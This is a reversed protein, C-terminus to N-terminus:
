AQSSYPGRETYTRFREALGRSDGVGGQDVEDEGLHRGSHFKSLSCVRGDTVLEGCMTRGQDCERRRSQAFIIKEIVPTPTDALSDGSQKPGDTAGPVLAEWQRFAQGWGVAPGTSHFGGRVAVSGVVYM